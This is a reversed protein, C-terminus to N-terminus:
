KDTVTVGISNSLGDDKTVTITYRETNGSDGAVYSYYHSFYQTVMSVQQITSDAGGNISRTIKCGTLLNETGTKSANFGINFITGHVITTDNYVYGVGTRFAITPPTKKEGNCSSTVFAFVTCIFLLSVFLVKNNMGPKKRLAFM